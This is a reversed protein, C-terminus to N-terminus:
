LSGGHLSINDHEMNYGHSYYGNHSNMLSVYIYNNSCNVARFTVSNGEAYDGSQYMHKIYTIDFNFGPFDTSDDHKLEDLHEYSTPEERTITYGFSECCDQSYDFGVFVNNDDVFNLKSNREFVKM